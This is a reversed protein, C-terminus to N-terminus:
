IVHLVVSNIQPTHFHVRERREPLQEIIYRSAFSYQHGYVSFFDQVGCGLSAIDYVAVYAVAVAYACDHCQALMAVLIYHLQRSARQPKLDAIREVAVPFAEVEHAALLFYNFGRDLLQFAFLVAYVDGSVAVSVDLGVVLFAPQEVVNGRQFGVHYEDGHTRWLLFQQHFLHKLTMRGDVLSEAAAEVHVRAIHLACRSPPDVMIQFKGVAEDLLWRADLPLDVEHSEKCHHFKAHYLGCIVM